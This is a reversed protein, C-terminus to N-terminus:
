AADHLREHHAAEAMAILQDGAFAAPASRLPRREVANGDDHAVHWLLAGDFHRENFVELAFIQVGDLLAVGEVAQDLFESQSLLFYCLARALVARCDGVRDAKEFELWGNAVEDFFSSNGGAV